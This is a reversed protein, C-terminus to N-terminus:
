LDPSPIIELEPEISCLLGALLATRPAISNLEIYENPSHDLGGVPGLGDLTPCGYGSAYNADSIGGTAAHNVEFGIHRAIEQATQALRLSQPTCVMAERNDPDTELELTVGAVQTQEMMEKWRREVEARDDNTQFRLDITVEASDPVVNTAIGGAIRGVNITVGERLGHLSQFKVIQHALELIANSGKEPEVGAHAAHGSAKLKYWAGGKRASVLDGNARAGELVLVRNAGQCLQWILEKSHRDGIEEDSVCLFRIEGFPREGNTVLAEIAYIAALVCGKMDYVGPGYVMDGEVRVPRSAATGVPYVTDMHGLLLVKEQGSGKIVGLVDSGWQEYEFVTVDMGLGRMRGALYLAVENVGSRHYTGSDIACLDTLEQLYKQLNAQVYAEVEQERYIKQTQQSISIRTSM